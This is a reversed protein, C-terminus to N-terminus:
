TFCRPTAPIPCKAAGRAAGERLVSYSVSVGSDELHQRLDPTVAAARWQKATSVSLGIRECFAGLAAANGAWEAALIGGIALQGARGAIM